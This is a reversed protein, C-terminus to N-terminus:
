GLESPGHGRIFNGFETAFALFVVAIVLWTLDLLPFDRPGFSSLVYVVAISAWLSWAAFCALIVLITVGLPRHRIRGDPPTSPNQIHPTEVFQAALPRLM